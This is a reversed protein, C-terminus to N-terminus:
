LTMHRAQLMGQEMAASCAADLDVAGDAAAQAVERALGARIISEGVGTVSCAVAPRRKCICVVYICM